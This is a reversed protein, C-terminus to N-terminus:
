HTRTFVSLWHKEKSWGLFCRANQSDPNTGTAALLLGSFAPQFRAKFETGQKGFHEEAWDLFQTLNEKSSVALYFVMQRWAYAANKLTILEEHWSHPKMQLRRCIWAFCQKAMAVSHIGLSENLELGSYLAALNQTTLIQQQEIIMGNKAPDWGGLEVGARSACLRVFVDAAEGQTTQDIEGTAMRAPALVKQLQSCEIDYYVAYLSNNLLNAAVLAARVFKASLKGMFIDAALEDVLPLELGAGKSLVNLEQRLKNPIIAQPFSALALITVEELTQKALEATSLDETRFGDVARIWPLEEIQVQKELDLLLLSRRRRFARYISSYLQRLASDTIGAARIGSTLQPLVQALTESSSIIGREVLVEVEANLCRAVKRQIATPVRVKAGISSEAGDFDGTTLAIQEPDDLGQDSPHKELAKIMAKAIEYHAPTKALDL